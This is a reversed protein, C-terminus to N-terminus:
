QAGTYGADALYQAYANVDVRGYIANLENALAQFSDVETQTIGEPPNGALTKQIPQWAALIRERVGPAALLQTGSFQNEAEAQQRAIENIAVDSESRIGERALDALMADYQSRLGAEQQALDRELAFEQASGMLAINQAFENAVANGYELSTEADFGADRAAIAANNRLYSALDAGQGRMNSPMDALAGSVPTLGGVGSSVREQRGERQARRAAQRYRREAAASGQAGMGEIAAVDGALRDYLDQYQGQIAATQGSSAIDLTNLYDQLAARERAGFNQLAQNRAGEIVGRERAQSQRLIDLVSQAASDTEAATPMSGPQTTPVYPEAPPTDNRLYGLAGSGLVALAGLGALRGKMKGTRPNRVPNYRDVATMSPPAPLTVQRGPMTLPMPSGTPTEVTGTVNPFPRAYNRRGRIFRSTALGGLGGVTALPLITQWVSDEPAVEQGAMAGIGAIGLAREGIGSPMIFPAAKSVVKGVAPIKSAWAVPAAPTFMAATSGLELAGTGTAKLRDWFSIDGRDWNGFARQFDDLGLLENAAFTGVNNVVNDNYGFLTGQLPRGEADFQDEPLMM